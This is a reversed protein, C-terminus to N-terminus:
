KNTAELSPCVPIWEGVDEKTIPSSIPDKTFSAAKDATPWYIVSHIDHLAMRLKPQGLSGPTTALPATLVGSRATEQSIGSKLSTM